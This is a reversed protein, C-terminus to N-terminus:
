RLIELLMFFDPMPIVSDLRDDIMELLFDQFIICLLLFNSGLNSGRGHERMCVIFQVYSGIYTNVSWMLFIMLKFM